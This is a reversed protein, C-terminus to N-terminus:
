YNIWCRTMARYISIRCILAQQHSRPVEAKEEDDEPFIDDVGAEEYLRKLREKEEKAAIELREEEDAALVMEKEEQTLDVDLLKAKMEEKIKLVADEWAKVRGSFSAVEERYELKEREVTENYLRKEDDPLDRWMRGMSARVEDRTAPDGGAPNGGAKTKNARERAIDWKDKQFLLFANPHYKKPPVPKPGVESIIRASCEEVIKSFRSRRINKAKYRHSSPDTRGKVHPISSTEVLPNRVPQHRKPILFDDPPMEIKGIFSELVQTAARLGSM